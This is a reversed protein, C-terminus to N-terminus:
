YGLFFVVLASFISCIVVFTEMVGHLSNSSNPYKTRVGTVKTTVVEAKCKSEEELVKTPRYDLKNILINKRKLKYFFIKLLFYFLGVLVKVAFMHKIIVVKLFAKFRANIENSHTINNKLYEVVHERFDTTAAYAPLLDKSALGDRKFMFLIVDFFILFVCV